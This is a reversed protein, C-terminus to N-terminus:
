EMLALHSLIVCCYNRFSSIKGWHHPDVLNSGFGFQILHISLAMQFVGMLCTALLSYCWVFHRSGFSSATSTSHLSKWTELLCELLFKAQPCQTRSCSGFSPMYVGLTVSVMAHKQFHLFFRAFYGSLTTNCLVKFHQHQVCVIFSLLSWFHFYFGFGFIPIYSAMDFGKSHLIWSHLHHQFYRHSVLAISLLHHFERPTFYILKGKEKQKRKLRQM